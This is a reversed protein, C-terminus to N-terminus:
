AEPDLLTDLILTKSIELYGIAVVSPVEAGVNWPLATGGKAYIPLIVLSDPIPEGSKELEDALARLREPLSPASPTPESKVARLRTVKGDDVPPAPQDHVDFLLTPRPVPRAPPLHGEERAVDALSPSKPALHCDCPPTIPPDSLLLTNSACNRAHEARIM